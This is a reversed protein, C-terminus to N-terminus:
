GTRTALARRVVDPIHWPQLTDAWTFRLVLWGANALVNQRHRDNFVADPLSRSGVGDAEAIVRPRLWAM